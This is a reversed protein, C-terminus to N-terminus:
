ASEQVCAEVIVLCPEKEFARADFVVLHELDVQKHHSSKLLFRMEIKAQYFLRDPNRFNQLFDKHLFRFRSKDVRKAM